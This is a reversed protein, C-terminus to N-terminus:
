APRISENWEAKPPVRREQRKRQQSGRAPHRSCAAPQMKCRPRLVPLLLLLLRNEGRSFPPPASPNIFKRGTTLQNGLVLSLGTNAEGGM